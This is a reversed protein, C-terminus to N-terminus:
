TENTGITDNMMKLFTEPKRRELYEGNKAQNPLIERSTLIIIM